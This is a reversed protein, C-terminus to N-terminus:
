VMNFLYHKKINENLLHDKVQKFFILITCVLFEALDLNGELFGKPLAKLPKTELQVTKFGPYILALTVLCTRNRYFWCNLFTVVLQTVGAWNRLSQGLTSCLCAGLMKKESHNNSYSMLNYQVPSEQSVRSLNRKEWVWYPTWIM